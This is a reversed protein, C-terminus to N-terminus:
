DAVQYPIVYDTQVFNDSVFQDFEKKINYYNLKYNPDDNYNFLYGIENEGLHPNNLDSLYLGFEGEYVDFQISIILSGNDYRPLHRIIYNHVFQQEMECDGYNLPIITLDNDLIYRQSLNM